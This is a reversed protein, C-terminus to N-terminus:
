LYDRLVINRSKEDIASATMIYSHKRDDRTEKVPKNMDPDRSFFSDSLALVDQIDNTVRSYRSRQPLACRKEREVQVQVPSVSKM